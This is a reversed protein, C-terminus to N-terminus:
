VLLYSNQEEPIIFQRSTSDTTLTKEFERYSMTQNEVEITEIRGGWWSDADKITIQDASGKVSIVWDEG